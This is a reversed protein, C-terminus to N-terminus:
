AGPLKYSVTLDPPALTETWKGDGNSPSREQGSVANAVTNGGPGTVAQRESRGYLLTGSELGRDKEEKAIAREYQRIKYEAISDGGILFACGGALMLGNFRKEFAKLTSKPLQEVIRCLPGVIPELDEAEKHWHPHQTWVEMLGFATCLASQALV